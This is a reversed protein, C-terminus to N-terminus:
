RPHPIELEDTKMEVESEQKGYYLIDLDLPRPGFRQGAFDRGMEAEIRQVDFSLRCMIIILLYPLLLTGKWLLCILVNTRTVLSRCLGSVASSSLLRVINRSANCDENPPNSLIIAV